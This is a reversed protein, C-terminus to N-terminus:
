IFFKVNMEVSFFHKLRYPEHGMHVFRQIRYQENDTSNSIPPRSSIGALIGSPSVTRLVRFM